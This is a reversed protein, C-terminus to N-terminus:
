SDLVDLYGAELLSMGPRKQARSVMEDISGSWRIRGDDLVHVVDAAEALDEILHTSLLVASGKALDAVLNRFSIRQQPDLGVTPEDLIVIPPDHVIAGALYVRRQEGGSLQGLQRKRFDETNTRKLAGSVASKASGRGSNMRFCYTLFEEISTLRSWNPSQPMYGVRARLQSRARFTEVKEGERHLSGGSPRQIGALVRLLTSKGAGNPGVIGTLGFDVGLNLDNLVRHAGYNFEISSAELVHDAM